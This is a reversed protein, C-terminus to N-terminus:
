RAQEWIAPPLDLSLEPKANSSRVVSRVFPRVLSRVRAVSNPTEPNKSTMHPRVDTREITRELVRLLGM